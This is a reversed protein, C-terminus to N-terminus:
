AQPVSTWHQSLLLSGPLSCSIRLQVPGMCHPEVDIVSGYAPAVSPVATLGPHPHSTIGQFSGMYDVRTGSM